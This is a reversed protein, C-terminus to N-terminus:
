DNPYFISVLEPLFIGNQHFCQFVIGKDMACPTKGCHQGLSDLAGLINEKSVKLQKIELLVLM